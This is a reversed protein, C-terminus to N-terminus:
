SVISFRKFANCIKGFRSMKQIAERTKQVQNTGNMYGICYADESNLRRLIMKNQAISECSVSHVYAKGTQQILVTQDHNFELVKYASQNMETEIKSDIKAIKVLDEPSFNKILDPNQIIEKATLEPWINKHIVQVICIDHGHKRSHRTGCFKMSYPHIKNELLAEIQKLLFVIYQKLQATKDYFATM